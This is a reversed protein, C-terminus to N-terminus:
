AMILFVVFALVMILFNNQKISPSSSNSPSPVPSSGTVGASFDTTHSCSCTAQTSSVSVTICGSASWNNANVDWYQCATKTTTDFSGSITFNVPARLYIQGDAAANLGPANISISVIDSYVSSSAPQQGAYPNSQQSIVQVSVSDSASASSGGNVPIKVTTRSDVAVTMPASLYQASLKTVAINFTSTTIVTAAQDAAQGNLLSSALTKIAKNIRGATETESKGLSAQINSLAQFGSTATTSTVSATGNLTQFVANVVSQRTSSDLAAANSSLMVLTSFTAGAQSNTNNGASVLASNINTLLTSIVGNLAANTKDAGVDVTANVQGL